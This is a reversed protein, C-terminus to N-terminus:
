TLEYDQPTQTLHCSQPILDCPTFLQYYTSNTGNYFFIAWMQKTQLSM